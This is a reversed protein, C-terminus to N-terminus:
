DREREIESDPDFGLQRSISSSAALLKPEIFKRKEDDFRGSPMTVIISGFVSGRFDFIPAGIASIGKQYEEYSYALGKARVTELEKKLMDLSTITNETTSVFKVKKFYKSIENDPLNALIAKGCATAYAPARDGIEVSFKLPQFCEEKSVFLIEVGKLIALQFQHCPM